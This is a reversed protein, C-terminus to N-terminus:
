IAKAMDPAPTLVVQLQVEAVAKSEDATNYWGKWAAFHRWDRGGLLALIDCWALKHYETKSDVTTRRQIQVRIERGEAVIPAGDKTVLAHHYVDTPRPAILLDALEPLGLQKRETDDLLRATRQTTRAALNTAKAMHTHVCHSEIKRASLMTQSTRM